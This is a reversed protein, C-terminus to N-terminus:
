KAFNIKLNEYNITKKYNKFITLRLNMTLHQKNKYYVKNSSIIILYQSSKPLVADDHIM